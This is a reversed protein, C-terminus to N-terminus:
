ANSGFPLSPRAPPPYEGPFQPPPARRSVKVREYYSGTRLLDVGKFESERSNLRRLLHDGLRNVVEAAVSIEQRSLKLKELVARPKWAGPAEERRGLHPSPARPGLGPGEPPGSQPRRARASSATGRSRTSARPLPHGPAAPPEADATPAAPGEAQDEARAARARVQPKERRSGSAGAAGCRRAGPRPAEPVAAPESPEASLGGEVCPASVGSATESAKRTAKRRPPAM